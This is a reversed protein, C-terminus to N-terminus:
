SGGSVAAGSSSPAPAPASQPSPQPASQPSPSAQPASGPGQLGLEGPGAPAPLQPTGTGATSAVPGSSPTASSAKAGLSKGPLLV